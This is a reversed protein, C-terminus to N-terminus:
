QENKLQIHLHFQQNEVYCVYSINYQKLISDIIYLGLGHSKQLKETNDNYTIFADFIKNTDIIADAYMDNIFCLTNNKMVITFIGDSPTYKIINSVINSVVKRLHNKPITITIDSDLDTNLIISKDAILYQYSMLTEDVIEKISVSGVDKVTEIRAIELIENVLNSMSQLEQYCESISKHIDQYGEIGAIIGEITVGMTMIPTKLEHTVGRLFLQREEELKQVVQIEDILQKYLSSIDNELLQLEDGQVLENSIVYEKRKMQDTMDTIHKVKKSFFRSYLNSLIISVIIGVALFYPFISRMLLQSDNVTFSSYKQIHVSYQSNRHTVVRHAYFTNQIISYIYDKSESDYDLEDFDDDLFLSNHIYQDMINTTNRDDDGSNVMIVLGMDSYKNLMEQSVGNKKIEAVIERVKTNFDDQQIKQTLTPALIGLLGFLIGVTILIIAISIGVTKWYISIKKM